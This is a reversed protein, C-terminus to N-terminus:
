VEHGNHSSIQMDTLVFLEMIVAASLKVEPPALLTSFHM